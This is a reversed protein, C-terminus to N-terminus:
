TSMVVELAGYSTKNATKSVRENIMQNTGLLKNVVTVRERDNDSIMNQQQKSCEVEVLNKLRSDGEIHTSRKNEHTTLTKASNTHSAMIM